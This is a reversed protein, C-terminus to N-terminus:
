VLLKTQETEDKVPDESDSQRRKAAKSQTSSEPCRDLPCDGFHGEDLADYYRHTHYRGHEGNVGHGSPRKCMEGEGAGCTPCSIELIPHRNWSRDCSGVNCSCPDTM